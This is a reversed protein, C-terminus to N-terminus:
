MMAWVAPNTLVNAVISSLTDIGFEKIRDLISAKREDVSKNEDEVIAKLERIQKGSMEEHLAEMFMEVFVNQTQFQEQSQNNTISVMPNANEASSKVLQPLQKIAELIALMKEFQKPSPNKDEAVQEFELVFKDGAYMTNIYRKTLMLWSEYAQNDAHTYYDFYHGCHFQLSNKLVRGQQILEDIEMVIIIKLRIKERARRGSMPRHASM